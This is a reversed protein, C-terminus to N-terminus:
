PTQVGVLARATRGDTGLVVVRGESMLLIPAGWVDTNHSKIGISRQWACNGASYWVDFTGTDGIVLVAVGTTDSTIAWVIPPGGDYQTWTQGDSSAWCLPSATDGTQGLAVFGHPYGEFGVAALSGFYDGGSPVGARTWSRGDAATWFQITGGPLTYDNSPVDVVLNM